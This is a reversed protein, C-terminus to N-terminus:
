DELVPETGYIKEELTKNKSAKAERAKQKLKEILRRVGEKEETRKVNKIKIM